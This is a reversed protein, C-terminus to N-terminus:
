PESALIHGVLLFLLHCLFDDRDHLSVFQLEMQIAALGSVELLRDELMHLDVAISQGRDAREIVVGWVEGEDVARDFLGEVFLLDAQPAIAEGFCVGGDEQLDFPFVVLDDIFPPDDGVFPLRFAEELLLLLEVFALDSPFQFGELAFIAIELGFVQDQIIPEGIELFFAVEPDGQVLVGSVPDFVKVEM